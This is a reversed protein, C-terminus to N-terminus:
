ITRVLQQLSRRGTREPSEAPYGIPLLAVPWSDDKLELIEKVLKPEYIAGVWVSALGLVTAALQAYACAITADQVCYLEKGRAGYRRASLAPRACFALVVPAEGLFEQGLCAKALARRASEKRVEVIQYAQLNGASPAQRAAELIRVIKEHEIPLARFSRISQRKQVAEFFEM